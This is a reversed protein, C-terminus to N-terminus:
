LKGGIAQTDVTSKDWVIDVDFTTVGSGAKDLSIAGVKKVQVNKLVVADTITTKDVSVLYTEFDFVILPKINSAHNNEEGGMQWMDYWFTRSKGAEDQIFTLTGSKSSDEPGMLHYTEGSWKMEIDTHSHEPFVGKTNYLDMNSKYEAYNRVNNALKPDVIISGKFLYDRQHEGVSTAINSAALM